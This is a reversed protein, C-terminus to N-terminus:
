TLYEKAKILLNLDEKFAGLGTNCGHCLLGRVKNTEHCHDIHLGLKYNSGDSGCIDCEGKDRLAVVESYPIGYKSAANRNRVHDKNADYYTKQKVKVCDKCQSQPKGYQKYFNSVPHEINCCTCVKSM